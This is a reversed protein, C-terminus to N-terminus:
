SDQPPWGQNELFGEAKLREVEKRTELLERDRKAMGAERLNSYLEKAKKPNSAELDRVLAAANEVQEALLASKQDHLEQADNPLLLELYLKGETWKIGSIEARGGSTPILGQVMKLFETKLNTGLSSSRIELIVPSTDKGSFVMDQVELTLGTLFMLVKKRNPYDIDV